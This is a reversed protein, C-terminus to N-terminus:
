PAATERDRHGRSPPGREGPVRDLMTLESGARTLGFVRSAIGIPPVVQVDFAGDRSRENARMVTMLGAMDLFDVGRLDFVVNRIGRWEPPDLAAEVRGIAALDFDGALRLLLTAPRREVTLRFDDRHTV